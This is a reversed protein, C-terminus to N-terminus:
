SVEVEKILKVKEAFDTCPPPDLKAAVGKSITRIGSWSLSVGDTVRGVLKRDRAKEYECEFIRFTNYYQGAKEAHNLETFLRAERLDYFVALPGWVARNRRRLTWEGVKYVMPFRIHSWGLASYLVGEHEFCVKYGRIIM